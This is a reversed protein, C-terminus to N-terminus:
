RDIGILIDVKREINDLQKEMGIFRGDMAADHREGENLRELVGPHAPLSSHHEVEEKIIEEIVPQVREHFDNLREDFVNGAVFSIGLWLGAIVGVVRGLLWGWWQWATPNISYTAKPSDGMFNVRQFLARREDCM